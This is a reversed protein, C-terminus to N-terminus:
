CDAVVATLSYLQNMSAFWPSNGGLHQLVDFAVTPAASGLGLIWFAKM